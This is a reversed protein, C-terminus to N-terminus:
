ENKATLFVTFQETLRKNYSASARLVAEFHALTLAKIDEMAVLPAKIQLVFARSSDAEVVDFVDVYGDEDRFSSYDDHIYPTTKEHSPNNHLSLIILLLIM